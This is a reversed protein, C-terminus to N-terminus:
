TKPSKRTPTKYALLLLLMSKPRITNSGSDVLMRPQMSVQTEEVTEEGATKVERCWNEVDVSDKDKVDNHAEEVFGPTEVNETHVQPREITENIGSDGSAAELENNQMSVSQHGLAGVSRELHPESGSADSTRALEEYSTSSSSRVLHVDYHGISREKVGLSMMAQTDAQTMVAKVGDICVYDPLEDVAILPTITHDPRSIFFHPRPYSGM